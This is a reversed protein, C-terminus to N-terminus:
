SDTTTPPVKRRLEATLEAHTRWTLADTLRLEEGVSVGCQLAPPLEPRSTGPDPSGFAGSDIEDVVDRANALALSWLGPWLVRLNALGCSDVHRANGGEPHDVKGGFYFAFRLDADLRERVAPVLDQLLELSTRVAPGLVSERAKEFDERDTAHDRLYTVIWMSEDEGVPHTAISLAHSQLVTTLSPLARGRVLLMPVYRIRHFARLSAELPRAGDRTYANRLLSQAFRGAALLLVRPRVVLTRDADVAFHCTAVRQGSDDLDIRTLEGRAVHEQLPAALDALLERMSLTRDDIRFHRVQTGSAVGGRLADPPEDLAEYSLGHEDWVGLQGAVEEASVGFYTPPQAVYASGTREIRRWWDAGCEALERALPASGRPLTYGFHMYGHSHLSEGVGLADRTLLLVSKAGTAVLRDLLTLGQIGGGVILHEIEVVDSQNTVM